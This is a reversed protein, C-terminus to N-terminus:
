RWRSGFNPIPSAVGGSKGYVKIANVAVVKSRKDCNNLM